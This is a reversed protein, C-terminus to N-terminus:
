SLALSYIAPLTTSNSYANIQCLPLSFYPLHNAPPLLSNGPISLICVVFFSGPLGQVTNLSCPSQASGALLQSVKHSDSLSEPSDNEEDTFVASYDRRCLVKTLMLHTFVNLLSLFPGPLTTVSYSWVPLDGRGLGRATNEWPMNRCARAAGTERGSHSGTLSPYLGRHAPANRALLPHSPRPQLRRPQEM